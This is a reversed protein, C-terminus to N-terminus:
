LWRQRERGGVGHGFRTYLGYSILGLFDAEAVSSDVGMSKTRSLDSLLLRGLGFLHYSLFEVCLDNHIMRKATM